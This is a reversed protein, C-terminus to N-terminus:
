VPDQWGEQAFVDDVADLYRPADYAPDDRDVLSWQFDSMSGIVRVLTNGTVPDRVFSYAGRALRATRVANNADVTTLLLADGDFVAETFKASAYGDLKMGWLLSNDSGLAFMAGRVAMSPDTYYYQSVLQSIWQAYQASLGIVAYNQALTLGGPEAIQVNHTTGITSSPLMFAPAQFSIQYSGPGLDEFDYSGDALTL